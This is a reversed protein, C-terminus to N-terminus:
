TPVRRAEQRGQEVLRRAEPHDTIHESELMNRIRQSQAIADNAAKAREFKYGADIYENEAHRM